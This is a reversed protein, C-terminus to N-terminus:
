CADEESLVEVIYNPVRSTMTITNDAPNVEPSMAPYFNKALAIPDKSSYIGSEPPIPIRVEEISDRLVNIHAQTLEVEEGPWFKKKNFISNVTVSIPMDRNDPDCNSRQVRCKIGKPKPKEAAVGSWGGAKEVPDYTATLGKDKLAIALSGKNGFPTGDIKKIEEM